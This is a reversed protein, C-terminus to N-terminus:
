YGNTNDIKSGRNPWKITEDKFIPLAKETPMLAAKQRDIVALFPPLPDGKKRALRLYVLLQAFMEILSTSAEKAEFWIEKTQIDVLNMGVQKLGLAKVYVGKVDEETKATKLDSLLSM